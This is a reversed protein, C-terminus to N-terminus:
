QELGTAGSNARREMLLAAETKELFREPLSDRAPSGGVGVPNTTLSCGQVLDAAIVSEALGVSRRVSAFHAPLVAASAGLRRSSSM